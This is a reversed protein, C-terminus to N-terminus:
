NKSDQTPLYPMEPGEIKLVKSLAAKMGTLEDWPFEVEGFCMSQEHGKGCALITDEPGALQAAKILADGRDAILFLNDDLRANKKEAAKGMESMIFELSETRPDEATIITIDAFEASIEAMMRRKERDRLGASGFVTIIKGKTFSRATNIVNLLANPTHAFDVIATFNQGMDVLQTRGPVELLASIGLSAQEPRIGLGFIAASMAALCNSINYNGPLRCVTPTNFYEGCVNFQTGGKINEIHEARLDAKSKISYSKKEVSVFEQLFKYSIDDKNLIALRINGIVKRTTKSLSYFLEAKSERYAEYTGHYDLHEHTINTVVAIDFECGTVRHQALGHSTTELVVHTIGAELMQKLILQVTPAEPTTVHFGTDLIQDGIQANVTSIMGVKFGSTKLIQYLLNSTTTKGDTGTVGIVTMFRAPYGFYAASLHALAERTNRVQIYPVELEKFNNIPQNGVIVVAGLNIAENIYQHGDTNIGPLAFYVDGHKVLRSDYQIGSILIDLNKSNSKWEFPIENIIQSFLKNEM